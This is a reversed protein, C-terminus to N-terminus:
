NADFSDLPVEDKNPKPKNAFNTGTVWLATKLLIDLYEPSYGMTSVLYKQLEPVVVAVAGVLYWAWKPMNQLVSFLKEM